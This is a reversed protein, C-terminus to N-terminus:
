ASKRVKKFDPAYKAVEENLDIIEYATEDEFLKRLLQNTHAHGSFHGEFIGIIPLGVQYLDGVADLIKHRVFEDKAKLGEPNLISDGDVVIANELSGGRGLGMSRLMEIEKLFGFTRAFSIMEKFNEKTMELSFAEKGIAKSPFDIDFNIFLGEEDSPKLSVKINNQELSVEKKIKLAKQPVGQPILGASEILFVFDAASGDMIPVEPGDIDILANSVGYANLAAMVHEITSVTVGDKNGLCSCLRTDVIYNYKAPILNDKGVVDTRRFVIGHDVPAPHFIMTAKKGSHVGVGVCYISNRFTKQEYDLHASMISSIEANM